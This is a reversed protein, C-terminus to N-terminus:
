VEGFLDEGNVVIWEKFAACSLLETNKMIAQKLCIMQFEIPMRAVFVILQKANSEKISNAIMSTLAFITSPEIPMVVNQPDEMIEPLTILDDFISCFAYFERAVGESVTGAMLPLIDLSITQENKLIDSLFKWTRPCSFTCDNHSPDFIHLADPKFNIYALVRYDINNKNGWEIWQNTDIALQLHVMRSQLATGMKHTIARDTALNGAAVIAVNKHLPIQGVMRDLIIKYSAAQISASAQNIEDFLLLWGNYGDPITDGELPFYAPPIFESRTDGESMFPLGSLMIPDMQSLRLDIVKLNTKEAVKKILDSKGIGPSGILMPTLKARLAKLTLNYAQKPYITIM